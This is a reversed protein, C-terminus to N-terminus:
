FSKFALAKIIDGSQVWEKGELDAITRAVKLLKEFGRVSLEMSEYIEQILQQEKKGLRCYNKLKEGSLQSNFRITEGRYRKRQVELASEVRKKIEESSEWETQNMELFSVREMQVCLDIRDLIPGSIKELYKNVDRETCSCRKRDPYYGCRCPNMSAVLMFRAPFEFVGGSRAIHVVGEEMPQRLTEIVSRSFEPFEDLYLVGLNALTVEGPKPYVSGGIMSAVTTSHHPSRFPRHKALGGELLGAISQIRSIEIQEEESLEPLISPMAKALATKGTGPPGVMLFNHMGAAAIEAAKKAMKQGKIQQFDRYTRQETEVKKREFLPPTGGSLIRVIENLCRVGIVQVSEISECEGLNDLPVFCQKCGNKIAELVIPLAGRVKVLEGTLSLEGLFLKDSLDGEVINMAKLISVAVAVDFYTGNKHINGPAFNITIRKPPIVYGSNRIATRVRERSEKIDSALLGVMDFAPLGNSVDTEVMVPIVDMGTITMCRVKSVM